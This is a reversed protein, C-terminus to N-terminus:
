LNKKKQHHMGWTTINGISNLAAGRHHYVVGKPNGTTGSTYNLSIADWEDKPYQWGFDEDGSELFSEYETEGLLEGEPALSDQVDIVIPKSKCLNLAEKVTNSFEKDTLLVKSEGHDLIFAITKADLRINLANLVAGCMPVGFHAELAAPVNPLMMAVTDGKGIGLNSLSSALKICRKYTELWNRRISGHIVATHDPFVRATRELFSLPTLETYNALNKELNDEYKNSSTM